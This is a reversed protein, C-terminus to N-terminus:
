ASLAEKAAALGARTGAHAAREPGMYGTVDGCALVGQVSTRGSEDAIVVFGGAEASLVVEAGHQRPAESAPQPPAAVAVADCPERHRRGDKGEVDLGEVWAHGRARLAKEHNGDVFVTEIGLAGLEAALAAAYANVADNSGAGVVVVRHGPRVGHLVALRGVGRASFIGPRDNDEFLANTDYAGTAYVYRRATVRVLGEPTAVALLGNDEEPFWAIVPSRTLFRAGANRAAEALREAEERGFRPDCLLSGGSLAQEDVCLVSAGQEAAARAASLGAPGAGIVAVDVHQSRVEHLATGRREPAKGLGSLQRVFKQMVRNLIKSGTMLTHHNMGQPFLWDMASLVDLDSAPFANQGEVVLGERCRTMCARVNPIGDVRMLCAGCHGELCFFARPRHYKISRSLVRVGSAFLAVALPEATFARLTRGEFEITM